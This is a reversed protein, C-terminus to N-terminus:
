QQTDVDHQERRIPPMTFVEPISCHAPICRHWGYLGVAVVAVFLSDAGSVVSRYSSVKLATHPSQEWAEPFQSAIAQLVHCMAIDVYTMQCCVVFLGTIILM